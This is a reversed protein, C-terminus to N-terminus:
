LNGKTTAEQLFKGTGNHLFSQLQIEGRFSFGAPTEQM